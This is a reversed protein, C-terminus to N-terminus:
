RQGEARAENGPVRTAQRRVMEVEMHTRNDTHMDRAEQLLQDLQGCRHRETQLDSALEMNQQSLHVFADQLEGLQSKLEKNQSVARLPFPTASVLYCEKFLSVSLGVNGILACWQIDTAGPTSM